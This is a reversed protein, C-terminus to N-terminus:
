EPLEKEIKSVSPKCYFLAAAAIGLGILVEYQLTTYYVPIGIVIVLGILYLRISALKVYARHRTWKEEIRRVRPLGTYFIVFGMATMLVSLFVFLLPLLNRFGANKVEFVSIENMNFFYGTITLVILLTYVLYYVTNLKNVVGEM